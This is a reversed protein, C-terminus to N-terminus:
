VISEILINELDYNKIKLNNLKNLKNFNNFNNFNNFGNFIKLILYIWLLIFFWINFILFSYVDVTDKCVM